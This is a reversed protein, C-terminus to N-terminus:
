LEGREDMVDPDSEKDEEEEDMPDTIPIIVPAKFEALISPMYKSDKRAAHIWDKTCILAQVMEADLRNAVLQV